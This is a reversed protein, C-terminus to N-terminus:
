ESQRRQETNARQKKRVKKDLKTEHGNGEKNGKRVERQGSNGRREDKKEEERRVRKSERARKKWWM